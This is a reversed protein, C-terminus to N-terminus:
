SNLWHVSMRVLSLHILLFHRDKELNLCSLGIDPLLFTGFCISARNRFSDILYLIENKEYLVMFNYIVDFHNRTINEKINMIIKNFYIYIYIIVLTIYMTLRATLNFYTM